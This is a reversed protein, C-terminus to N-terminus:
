TAAVKDQYSTQFSFVQFLGSGALGIALSFIGMAVLVEVLTFGQTGHVGAQLDPIADM